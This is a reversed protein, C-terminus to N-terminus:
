IYIYVINNNRQQNKLRNSVIPDSFMLLNSNFIYTINSKFSRCLVILFSLSIQSLAGVYELNLSSSKRLGADIAHNLTFILVVGVFYLM